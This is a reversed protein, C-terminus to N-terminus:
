TQFGARRLADAVRRQHDAQWEALSQGAEKAARTTAAALVSAAQARPVVVVGDEDAIVVDGAAVAVGGCRIPEDLTGLADKPAAIPIVGRGHVPFGRERIEGIDRVLGDLVFGAIGRQQAVACVNGGALACNLEGSEVVIVAGVGARYIAAHLMLNDNLPCRVPCAPGAIRPAGAWLPRIGFDMVGTRGVVDALTTTALQSFAAFENM